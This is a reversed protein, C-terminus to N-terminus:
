EWDLREGDRRFGTTGCTNACLHQKGAQAVACVHCTLCSHDLLSTSEPRVGRPPHVTDRIALGGRLCGGLEKSHYLSYGWGQQGTM